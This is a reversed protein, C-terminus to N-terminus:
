QSRWNKPYYLQSRGHTNVAFDRLQHTDVKGPAMIHGVDWGTTVLADAIMSRHCRWWVSEACMIAVSQRGRPPVPWTRARDTLEKLGAWFEETQMYDAYGRFSANNWAGNVTEALPLAKRKGGLAAIHTYELGEAECADIIDQKNWQPCFRSSPYSRVDALTHVGNEKLLSFVEEHTRTSHGITYIM